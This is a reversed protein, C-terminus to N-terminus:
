PVEIESVQPRWGRIVWNVAQSLSSGPRVVCCRYTCSDRSPSVAVSARFAAPKYTGSWSIFVDGAKRCVLVCYRARDYGALSVRPKLLGQDAM